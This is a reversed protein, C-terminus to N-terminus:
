IGGRRRKKDQAIFERIEESFEFWENDLKFKAFKNHLAKEEEAGGRFKYILEVDVPSATRIKRVREGPDVSTGIKVKNVATAEVFYVHPIKCHDAIDSRYLAGIIGRAESHSLSYKDFLARLEAFVCKEVEDLYSM